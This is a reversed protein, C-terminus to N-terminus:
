KKNYKKKKINRVTNNDPGWRRILTSELNHVKEKYLSNISHYCFYLDDPFVERDNIFKKGVTTTGNLHDKLRKKICVDAKGIYRCRWIRITTPFLWFGYVGVLNDPIIEINGYNFKMKEKM